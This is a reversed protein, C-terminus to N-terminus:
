IIEEDEVFKALLGKDAAFRVLNLYGTQPINVGREICEECLGEFMDEVDRTTWAEEMKMDNIFGIRNVGKIVSLVGLDNKKKVDALFDIVNKGAM